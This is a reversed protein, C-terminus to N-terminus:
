GVLDANRLTFYRYEGDKYSDFEGLIQMVTGDKPYDEPYAYSEKLEFEISLSCCGAPDPVVCAYYNKDNAEDHYTSMLGCVRIKKGEYEDPSQTINFMEAYVLNAPLVTLDKDANPDPTKAPKTEEATTEAPAAAAPESAAPLEGKEAAEAFAQAAEEGASEEAARAQSELVQAVGTTSARNAEQAKSGCGSAMVAILAMMALVSIRKM